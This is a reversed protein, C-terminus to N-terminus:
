EGKADKVAGQGLNEEQNFDMRLDASKPVILFSQIGLVSNRCLFGTGRNKNGRVLCSSIIISSFEPLFFFLNKLQMIALFQQVEREKKERKKGEKILFILM